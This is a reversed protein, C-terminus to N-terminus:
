PSLSETSLAGPHWIEPSLTVLARGNLKVVVRKAESIKLNLPNVSESLFNAIFVAM